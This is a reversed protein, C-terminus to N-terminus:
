IAECNEAIAQARALTDSDDALPMVLFHKSQIGLPGFVLDAM